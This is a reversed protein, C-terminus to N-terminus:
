YLKLGNVSAYHGAARTEARREPTQCVGAPTLHILAVLALQFATKM